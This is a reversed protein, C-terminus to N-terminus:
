SLMGQFNEFYRKGKWDVDTCLLDPAPPIEDSDRAGLIYTSGRDVIGANACLADIRGHDKFVQDFAKAQSDYDAVNCHYFKAKSGLEKSLARNEKIDAMAVKWGRSTLERSLAEGM